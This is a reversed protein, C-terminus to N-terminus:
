EPTTARRAHFRRALDYLIRRISSKHYGTEEAIEDLSKGDRRMEVIQRHQEGCLTLLLRWTDEAQMFDGPLPEDEPTNELPEEFRQRNLAQRNQRVRDILRNRVARVLFAKFQAPEEFSWRNDRFGPILDSWLSQVIDVSDLKARLGPSMRRRVIMRLFPEYRRFLVEAAQEDGERIRDLMEQLAIDDM